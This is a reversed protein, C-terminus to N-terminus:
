IAKYQRRGKPLSKGSFCTPFDM